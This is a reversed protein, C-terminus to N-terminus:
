ESSLSFALVCTDFAFIRFGSFQMSLTILITISLSGFQLKIRLEPRVVEKFTAMRKKTTIKKIFLQFSGSLKLM